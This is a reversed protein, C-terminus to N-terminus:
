VFCLQKFFEPRHFDPKPSDIPFAMLYHPAIANSACKYLNGSINNDNDIGILALPIEIQITWHVINNHAAPNLRIIRNFSHYFDDNMQLRGSRQKGFEALAVGNSNCEFNYYGGHKPSDVFVEVCSDQWCPDGNKLYQARFCPEPENIDFLFCLM